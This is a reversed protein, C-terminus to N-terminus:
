GILIIRSSFLGTPLLPHDFGKQNFIPGNGWGRGQRGEDQENFAGGCLGEELGM